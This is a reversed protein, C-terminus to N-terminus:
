RRDGPSSAAAARQAIETWRPVLHATGARELSEMNLQTLEPLHSAVADAFHVVSALQRSAEPASGPDHHHQVADILIPPLGWIALLRAGIDAHTVGFLEAELERTSGQDRARDHLSVFNDGRGLALVIHGIDRLLTAAFAEDKLPRDVLQSALGAAHVAARQLTDLSFWCREHVAPSSFVATTLALYRLQEMGLRSVADSISAIPQKAGFYGSNVLQLVKTALGPDQMVARAIHSVTTTPSQMCRTLEFYVDPPTPLKTISGVVEDINRDLEPSAGGVSRELVARLTKADCPKSLLQHLAPLAQAIAGKDAHGTLMIRVTGPCEAKVERLLDAGDLGPMRMDSVVVDFRERHIEALAAEGGAAFVMDWRKRERFLLNQLGDLIGPEDDVFLIRKKYQDPM